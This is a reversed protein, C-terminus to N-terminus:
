WSSRTEKVLKAKCGAQLPSSHNRWDSRSVLRHHLFTLTEEHLERGCELDIGLAVQECSALVGLRGELYM